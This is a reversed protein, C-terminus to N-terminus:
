AATTTIKRSCNARSASAAPCATMWIIKLCYAAPAHTEFRHFLLPKLADAQDLEECVVAGVVLGHRLVGVVVCRLDKLWGPQGDPRVVHRSMEPSRKFYVLRQRVSTIRATGRLVQEDPEERIKDKFSEPALDAMSSAIMSASARSYTSCTTRLACRSLRLM